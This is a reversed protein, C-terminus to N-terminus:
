VNDELGRRYMSMQAEDNWETMSAYHQFTTAYDTASKKQRLRQILSEAILEKNAQGFVRRMRAKFPAYREIWAKTEDEAEGDMYKQLDTNVWTLTKGRLFSCAIIVKDKEQIEPSLRFYFDLQLLWNDLKYREGQFLDPKSPKTGSGETFTSQRTQGADRQTTGSSSM